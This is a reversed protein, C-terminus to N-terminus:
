ILTCPRSVRTLKSPLLNGTLRRPWEQQCISERIMTHFLWYITSSGGPSLGDTNMRQALIGNERWLECWKTNSRWVNVLLNSRRTHHKCNDVTKKRGHNAIWKTNAHDRKFQSRLKSARDLKTTAPCLIKMMTEKCIYCYKWWQKLVMMKTKNRQKSNPLMPIDHAHQIYKNPLSIHLLKQWKEGM